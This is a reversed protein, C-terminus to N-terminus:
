RAALQRMAAFHVRAPLMRLLKLWWTLRRPFHIEFRGAAWGRLIASAAVEPSILAPMRFTNRATLPTAVFGPAILSVGIGRPHLDLYLIEAFHHLAAKTPGYALARPLGRYAVASGVLSLHGRGQRLMSPLVADVLALAGGYNIADHRLMEGLDFETARQVDPNYYGASYLALDIAGYEAVLHAAAERLAGSETVDLPLVLSGAHAAAFAPLAGADRASVAVKAGRRHLEAATARGIGSSAGVIWAVRGRWDDLPPNLPM